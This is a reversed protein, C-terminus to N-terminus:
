FQFCRERNSYIKYTLTLGFINYWDNDEQDGRNYTEPKQSSSRDAMAASMAGYTSELFFPEVYYTSVDDIYDTFTMRWGWELGLTWHKNLRFKTGVGFPISLQTLSYRERDNYETTGQGETGLPQLEVWEGDRSELNAYGALTTAHWSNPDYQFQATPNFKFVALGGFVYPITGRERGPAIAILNYDLRAAFEWLFTKFHLNREVRDNESYWQDDGSLHGYNASIGFTIRESPNYRTLIGINLHTGRPDFLVPVLDGQYNSAGLFIGFELSSTSKWKQAQSDFTTGILLTALTLSSLLINKMRKLVFGNFPTITAVVFM